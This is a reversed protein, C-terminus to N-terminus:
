RRPGVGFAAAVRRFNEAMAAAEDGVASGLNLEGYPATSAGGFRDTFAFRVGDLVEDYGFM